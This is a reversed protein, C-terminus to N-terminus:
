DGGQRISQRGREGAIVSHAAMPRRRAIFKACAFAYYALPAILLASHATLERRDPWRVVYYVVAVVVVGGVVVSGAAAAVRLGSAVAALRVVPPLPADRRWKLGYHGAYIVVAAAVAVPVASAVGFLAMLTAAYGIVCGGLCCLLLWDSRTM